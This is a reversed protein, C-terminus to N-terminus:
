FTSVDPAAAIKKLRNGGRVGAWFLALVIVMGIWGIAQEWAPVTLAQYQAHGQARLMLGVLGMVVGYASFLFMILPIMMTRRRWQVAGFVLYIVVMLGTAIMPGYTVVGEAMAATQRAVEPDQGPVSTSQRVAALMQDRYLYLRVAGLISTAVTLFAGIAGARAAASADEPTVIPTFPNLLRLKDIM